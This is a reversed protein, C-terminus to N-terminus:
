APEGPSSSTDPMWMKAAARRHCAGRRAEGIFKDLAWIDYALGNMDGALDECALSSPEYVEDYLADCALILRDVRAVLGRSLPRGEDITIRLEAEVANRSDALASMRKRLAEVNAAQRATREARGEKTVQVM